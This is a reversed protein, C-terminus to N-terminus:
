KDRVKALFENVHSLVLDNKNLCVDAQIHDLGPLTVSIANPIYRAGREAGSNRPDLEGCFVLCPVRIGRLDNDNLPVWDRFATMLAILAEADNAALTAMKEAPTLPRGFRQLLYTDPDALLLKLGQMIEEEVRIQAKYRYPSCGGLIFSLFRDEYRLAVRFGIRAGMSYGFYHARSVGVNDLVAVVDDAMQLGYAAPEHPKDSRGHGRADFLILQFDNRLLDVVGIVRWCNLGGTLGYALVLPPGEGEVEYYIKVGANNAYPMHYRWYDARKNITFM